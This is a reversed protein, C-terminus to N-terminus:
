PLRPTTVLSCRQGIQLRGFAGDYHSGFPNAVDLGLLQAATTTAMRLLEVLPIGPRERRLLRINETMELVGGSAPSDTGLAVPIGRELVAELPFRDYGFWRHSYPCHVIGFKERHQALFDLENANLYNAHILLVRPAQALLELAPLYTDAEGSPQPSWDPVFSRLFEALPGTGAALCEREEPSEALHIALPLDYEKALEVSGELLETTTSYLAHPALGYRRWPLADEEDCAVYQGLFTKVSELVGETRALTPAILEHFAFLPPQATSLDLAWEPDPCFDAVLAADSNQAQKHGERFRKEPPTTHAAQVKGVEALWSPFSSGAEGVPIARGSFLLHTHLNLPAPFLAVDGLDHLPISPDSAALESIATVEGEIVTVVGREIPADPFPFVEGALFRKTTFVSSQV